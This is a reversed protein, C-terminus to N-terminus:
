KAEMTKVKGLYKKLEDRVKPALFVLGIMNPVLMAFIMADSFNIVSGLSIAGGIVVFM